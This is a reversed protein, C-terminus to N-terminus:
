QTLAAFIVSYYRSTCAWYEEGQSLKYVTEVISNGQPNGIVKDKVDTVVYVGSYKYRNLTVKDGVKFKM